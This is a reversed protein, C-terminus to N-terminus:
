NGGLFRIIFISGRQKESRVSLEAGSLALYRYALALGLGMGQYRRNTGSDEQSFPQFLKPLYVSAIGIGTDEIELCATGDEERYTRVVVKGCETFKVGNDLLNALAHTFCYEDIVIFDPGSFQCQLRINKRRAEAQFKGAEREIAQTINLMAPRLHFTGSEIKSFDALARFKRELQVGARLIVSASEKTQQENLPDDDLLLEASGIIATLPTRIEHDLNQLGPTVIVSQDLKTPQLPDVEIM